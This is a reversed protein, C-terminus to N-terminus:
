LHGEVLTKKKKKRGKRQNKRWFGLFTVTGRSRAIFNQLLSYMGGTGGTRRRSKLGVSAAEGSEGSRRKPALLAVLGLCDDGDGKRSANERHFAFPLRKKKL